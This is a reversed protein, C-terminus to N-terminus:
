STPTIVPSDFQPVHPCTFKAVGERTMRAKNPRYSEARITLGQSTPTLVLSDFQPINPCTLNTVGEGTM